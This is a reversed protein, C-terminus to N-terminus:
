LKISVQALVTRGPQPIFTQTFERSVPFLFKQDTANYLGLNYRIGFREAEGSLVVDWIFVPSTETQPPDNPQDYKDWVPGEFTLRTALVLVRDLLPAAAKLAALHHPSNPVNRLKTAANDLYETDQYSYSVSAMWGDRWDRRVEVEGGYTQIPNTINVYENPSSETGGGALNIIDTIYNTYGALTASLTPRFHHVLELEGSYVSEPKLSAQSLCATKPEVVACDGPLQTSADYYHEYVSPARFAKGFMAKINGAEYPKLIVAVRPNLSGGFNSYYDYRAGGTVKLQRVPTFDISGYGAGVQFSRNVPALYTVPATTVGASVGGASTGSQVAKFDDQLEGGVTIRLLSKWKYAIRQEVGAWQGRFTETANGGQEVLTPLFDDFNYLDVHARTLWEIPKAVQPELRLELTGRTDIFHLRSDGFITGFEGSPLNKNRSNLYWQLTAWKYWARGTVNGADFGDNGRSNGGTAPDSAFEQFFYDAGGGHAASVSTWIGADPSIQLQQMVRAAGVGNGAATIGAETHTPAARTRTTLNIVGLFAGTGYVVSGPGRVIEIREIDALDVRGDYGFYSQGVYNDNLPHGDLLVLVRSGYDGPRSFGRIGVIDYSTDNGVYIGRVGRLADALTPYGMARLEQGTIITVSSPADEVSEAVRSAATVEEIERLQVDLKAPVALSVVVTREVARFGAHSVRVAHPGLPISLVAPTFGLARGDVEVLAERIDSNVVLDGGIASLRPHVTITQNASVIISVTSTAFGEKAVVLTHRGPPISLTAPVTGIPAADESDLRLAAGTPEGDVLVHGVVQKLRVKLPTEAGRAVSVHNEAPEYGALEVIVNYNGTDLGLKVPTSGRSGLDRREVYVTAGPPETEVALVAVSPALRAVAQEVHARNAPDTEGELAQSYYQYAHTSQKLQEYTRAINFMVNRNAVLRNSALFRELAGPFDHARYRAAGAEFQLEAEDALNDARAARPALAGLVLFLAVVLLRFRQWPRSRRARECVTPV